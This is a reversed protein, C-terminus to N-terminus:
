LVQLPSTARHRGQMFSRLNRPAFRMVAIMSGVFIL